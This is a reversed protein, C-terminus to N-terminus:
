QPAKYVVGQIRESMSPPRMVKTKKMMTSSSKKMSLTSAKHLSTNSGKITALNPLQSTSLSSSLANPNVSNSSIGSHHGQGQIHELFNPNRNQQMVSWLRSQVDEQCHASIKRMKRIWSSKLMYKLTPRRKEEYHLSKQLFRLADESLIVRSNVAIHM